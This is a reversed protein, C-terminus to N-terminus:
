LQLSVGGGAEWNRPGIFEWNDEVPKVQPKQQMCLTARLSASNDADETPKLPLLLLKDELM